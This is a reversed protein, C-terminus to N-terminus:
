ICYGASLKIKVELSIYHLDHLYDTSNGSSTITFILATKFDVNKIKLIMLWKKIITCSLAAKKKKKKSTGKFADHHGLWRVNGGLM